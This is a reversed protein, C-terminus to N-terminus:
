PNTKQSYIILSDTLQTLLLEISAKSIYTAVWDLDGIKVVVYKNSNKNMIDYSSYGYTPSLYSQNTVSRYIKDTFTQLNTKNFSTGNWLEGVTIANESVSNSGSTTYAFAYGNNLTGMLFPAIIAIVAFCFVLINHLLKKAM